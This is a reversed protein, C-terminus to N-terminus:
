SFSVAMMPVQRLGTSYLLRMTAYKLSKSRYGLSHIITMIIKFLVFRIKKIVLLQKRL